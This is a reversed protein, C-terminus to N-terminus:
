TQEGRTRPGYRPMATQRIGCYYCRRPAESALMIADRLAADIGARVVPHLVMPRFLSPRRCRCCWDFRLDWAFGVPPRFMAGRSCISVDEFQESGVMRKARRWADAYSPVRLLAWTSQQADPPRRGILQWPARSRVGPPMRPDRRAYAGYTPDDLLQVLTPPTVVRLRQVAM